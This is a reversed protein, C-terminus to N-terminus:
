ITSIKTRQVQIERRKARHRKMDKLKVSRANIYDIAILIIATKKIISLM